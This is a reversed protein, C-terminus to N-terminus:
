QWAIDKTLDTKSYVEKTFLQNSPIKAVFHHCYFEPIEVACHPFVLFERESFFFKTM